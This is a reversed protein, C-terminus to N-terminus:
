KLGNIFNFLRVLDVEKKLNIKEEKAFDLVVKPNTINLLSTLEKTSKPVKIYIGNNNVLYVDNEKQFYPNKDKLYTNTVNNNYEIVQVKEKKYLKFKGTGVLEVIIINCVSIKFFFDM